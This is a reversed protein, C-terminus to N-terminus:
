AADDADKRAAVAELIAVEAEESYYLALAVCTDAYKQTHEARKELKNRDHDAKWGAVAAETEAKRTELIEELKIKAATAEEKKAEFTEKAAKLKTQIAVETEMQVEELHDKATKLRDISSDIKAHFIERMEELNIKM